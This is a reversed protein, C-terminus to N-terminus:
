PHGLRDARALAEGILAQASHPFGLLWQTIAVHTAIFVGPDQGYIGILEGHEQPRFLAQGQRLQALAAALEGHYMLAGGLTFHGGIRGHTDGIREAEALLQKAYRFASEFDAQVLHFIAIGWLLGFLRGTDEARRLLEFAREYVRGLEVVGYGQSAQLATALSAYMEAALRTHEPAEPLRGELLALGRRLLEAAEHAAHRRIANEAAQRLYHLARGYDRGREFHLALEAALEETRRGGGTELWLGVRRHLGARRGPSLNAYAFEHYFAHGFEYRAM